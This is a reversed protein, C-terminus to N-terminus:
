GDMTGSAKMPRNFADLGPTRGATRLNVIQWGTVQTLSPSSTRVIVEAQGAWHCATLSDLTANLAASCAYHVDFMCSQFQLDLIGFVTCMEEIESGRSRITESHLQANHRVHARM